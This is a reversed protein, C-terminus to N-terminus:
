KCRSKTNRHASLILFLHFPSSILIKSGKSIASTSSHKWFKLLQSVWMPARKRAPLCMRRRRVTGCLARKEIKPWSAPPWPLFYCLLAEHKRLWAVILGRVPCAPMTAGASVSAPLRSKAQSQLRTSLQSTATHERDAQALFVLARFIPFIM